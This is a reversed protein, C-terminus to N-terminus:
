PLTHASNVSMEYMDKSFQNMKTCARMNHTDIIIIIPICIRRLLGVTPMM